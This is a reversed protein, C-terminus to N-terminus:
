ILRLVSQVESSSLGLRQSLVDRTREALEERAKALRRSITSPAVRYLAGLEEVGLGDFYYQQLALRTQSPLGTVADKLAVRYQEEVHLTDIVHGQSSAVVEALQSRFEEVPWHVKPWAARASATAQDLAADLELQGM